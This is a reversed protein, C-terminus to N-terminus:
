RGLVGQAVDVGRPTLAIEEDRGSSLLGRRQGLRLLSEVKSAPGALDNALQSRRARAPSPRPEPPPALPVALAM